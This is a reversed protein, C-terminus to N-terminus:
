FILNHEKKYNKPFGKTTKKKGKEYITLIKNKGDGMMRQRFRELAEEKSIAKINSKYIGPLWEDTWRPCNKYEITYTKKDMKKDSIIYLIFSINFSETM